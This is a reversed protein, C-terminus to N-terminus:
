YTPRLRKPGERQTVRGNQATSLVREVNTKLEILVGLKIKFGLGNLQLPSQTSVNGLTLYFDITNVTQMQKFRFFKQPDPDDYTVTGGPNTNVPIDALQPGSIGNGLNVAGQPLYLDIESGISISNVYLYAPGSVLAVNPATLVHVVTNTVSATSGGPFGIYNRPNSNGSDTSTGFILNFQTNAASTFVFRNQASFTVTIVSPVSAALFAATLATALTAGTYNGVPITITFNGGQNLIFTNNGTNFVNWSYPIQASLVKVGVINSVPLSFSFSPWDTSAAGQTYSNSANLSDMSYERYEYDSSLWDTM